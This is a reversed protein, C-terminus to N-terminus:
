KGDCDGMGAQYLVGCAAYMSLGTIMLTIGTKGALRIAEEPPNKGNVFCIIRIDTMEATRVTQPNTLSTLLIAGPVSYQLVDSLLDSACVVRLEKGHDDIVTLPKAKLLDIVEKVTM